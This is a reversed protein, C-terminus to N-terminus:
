ADQDRRGERDKLPMLRRYTLVAVTITTVHMCMLVAAYVWGDGTGAAIGIFIDPLFSVALFSPVLWRMVRSPRKAIRDVLHWGVAGGVAALVTLSLFPIPQLGPGRAGISTGALALLANLASALVAVVAIALPVAVPPRDIRRLTTSM